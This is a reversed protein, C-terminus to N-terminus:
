RDLNLDADMQDNLLDLIEFSLINALSITEFDTPGHLKVGRKWEISDQVNFDQQQSEQLDNLVAEILEGAWMMLVRRKHKNNKIKSADFYRAGKEDVSTFREGLAMLKHAYDNLIKVAIDNTEM